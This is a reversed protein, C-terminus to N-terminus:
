YSNEMEELDSALTSMAEEATKEGSYADHVEQYVSTSQSPWIETVPRAVANEGAVALTDLYRGMVPVNQARDSEFLAPEPPIWGLEEFMGLKVSEATFADIVQMAAEPHQTNPNVTLHWGGLAAVPGGAGDYEAEDETVGYPIPMVGLNEGMEEEAGNINISYPWNRHAVANGATFPERSDEEMWQLVASPAIDGTVEDMTDEADTGHIFARNMRIADIVPQEDVTIPRDGIPGFLNEHDGFYAGGWSTMAENFTCCSLGEYDAAQFTYGYEVDDSQDRVDAVIESFRSWSMSETAWNEGEPDYGAEEVLDKRYQMTPFDPFLPVGYLNGDIDTTTDVAMDFYDSHVHDVTDSPLNEELNVLQGSVIFPITWGSDMMMIDPTDRGAELINNFGTQRDDTNRPGATIEIDVNDSLGADRLLGIIADSAEQADPDAALEITVEEEVELNEPDDVLQEDGDGDGGGVCGSLSVTAATGTAGVAQVFRRRSVSRRKSGSTDSNNDVM